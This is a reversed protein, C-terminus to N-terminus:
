ELGIKDNHRNQKIEDVWNSLKTKFEHSSVVAKETINLFNDIVTTVTMLGAFLFSHNIFGKPNGHSLAFYAMDIACSGLIAVRSATMITYINHPKKTEGDMVAGLAEAKTVSAQDRYIKRKLNLTAEDREAKPLLGLRSAPNYLSDNSLRELFIEFEEETLVKDWPIKRYLRVVESDAPGINSIFNSVKDLKYILSAVFLMIKARDFRDM